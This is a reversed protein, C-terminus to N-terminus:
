WIPLLQSPWAMPHYCSVNTLVLKLSSAIIRAAEGRGEEVTTDPASTPLHRPMQLIDLKIAQKFLSNSLM